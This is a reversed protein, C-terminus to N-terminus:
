NDTSSSTFVIAFGEPYTTSFFGSDVEITPQFSINLGTKNAFNYKYWIAGASDGESSEFELTINGDLENTISAEGVKNWKEIEDLKVETWEDNSAEFTKSNRFSLFLLFSIYFTYYNPLFFTIKQARM